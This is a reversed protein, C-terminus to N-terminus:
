AADLRNMQGQYVRVADAVTLVFLEQYVKRLSNAFPEADLVLGSKVALYGMLSSSVVCPPRHLGSKLSDLTGFDLDPSAQGM